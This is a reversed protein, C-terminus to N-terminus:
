FYHRMFLEPVSESGPLTHELTVVTGYFSYIRMDQMRETDTCSYEPIPLSVGSAKERKKKIICYLTLQHFYYLSCFVSLEPYSSILPFRTGKNIGFITATDDRLAYLVRM